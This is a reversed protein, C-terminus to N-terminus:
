AYGLTSAVIKMTAVINILLIGGIIHTIGKGVSGPQSGPHAMKSLIVWGRLFAIIGILHLYWVILTTIEQWQVVRQIEAYGLMSSVDLITDTGFVTILSVNIASPFYILVAGVLIHVM